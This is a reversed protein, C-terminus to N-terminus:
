TTPGSKQGNENEVFRTAVKQHRGSAKSVQAWFPAARRRSPRKALTMSAFPQCADRLQPM